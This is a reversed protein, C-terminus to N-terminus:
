VEKRRKEEKKQGPACIRNSGACGAQLAVLDALQKKSNSFFISEVSSEDVLLYRFSVLLRREFCHAPIAHRLDGITFPPREAPVRQLQINNTQNSQDTRAPLESRKPPSFFFFFCVTKRKTARAPLAEEKPEDNPQELTTHREM